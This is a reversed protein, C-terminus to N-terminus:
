SALPCALRPINWRQSGLLQHWKGLGSVDGGPRNCARIQGRFHSQASHRGRVTAWGPNREGPAELNLILVDQLRHLGTHTLGQARQALVKALQQLQGQGPLHLDTHVPCHLHASPSPGARPLELTPKRPPCGGWVVLAFELVQSVPSDSSFPAKRVM